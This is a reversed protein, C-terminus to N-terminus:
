PAPPSATPKAPACGVVEGTKARRITTVASTTVVTQREAPGVTVTRSGVSVHEADRAVLHCQVTQTLDKDVQFRIQTTTDDTVQYGITGYQVRDTSFRSYGTYALALLAVGLVGSGVVLV